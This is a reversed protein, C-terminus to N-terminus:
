FFGVRGVIGWITWNFFALAYGGPRESPEILFLWRTFVWESSLGRNGPLPRKESIVCGQIKQSRHKHNGHNRFMFFVRFTIQLLTRWTEARLTQYPGMQHCFHKGHYVGGLHITLTPGRPSVIKKDTEVLNM